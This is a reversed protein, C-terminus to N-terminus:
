AALIAAALADASNPDVTKGDGDASAAAKGAQEEDTQLATLAAAVKGAKGAEEGAVRAAEIAATRATVAAAGLEIALEAVPKGGALAATTATADLGYGSCLATVAVTRANAEALAQTVAAKVATDVDIASFTKDDSMTAGKAKGTSRRGSALEALVSEFDGIRDALGARVADQGVLIGGKGFDSLVTQTDVGRFAAVQDVFVQGLADVVGQLHAAGADTAPDANKLPSVSSVFRFSTTGKPDDQSRLAVQAGISGLMATPDIIINGPGVGAAAWYAASAAMGNVFAKVPKIQSAANIAAALASPGSADGGPSDVNLLIAKVKPDDMAVQLDQRLVEYSTAGSIASFFTARKILPGNIDLIAVGNRVTARDAKALTKARYAELAEPSVEHERAAIMLLVELAAPEMAWVTNLAAELLSFKAM